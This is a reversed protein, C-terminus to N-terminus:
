EDIELKEKLWKKTELKDIPNNKNNEDYVKSWPSNKEHTLEVLEYTSWKGFIKYLGYVLVSNMEPMNKAKKIESETLEIEENGNVKYYDYLERCVPGFDWALFQQHYLYEENGLAMYLGELFYMLKQLKLNTISEGQKKFYDIVYYSNIIIDREIESNEKMSGSKREKKSCKINLDYWLHKFYEVLKRFVTLAICGGKINITDVM